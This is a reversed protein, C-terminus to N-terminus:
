QAQRRLQIHHEVAQNPDTRLPGSYPEYGDKEIRVVVSNLQKHVANVKAPSAKKFKAWTLVMVPVQHLPTKGLSIPSNDLFSIQYVSADSPETTITVNRQDTKYEFKSSRTNNCGTLFLAAIIVAALAVHCKM